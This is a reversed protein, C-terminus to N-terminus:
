GHSGRDTDYAEATVASRFENMNQIPMGVGLRNKQLMAALRIERRASGDFM